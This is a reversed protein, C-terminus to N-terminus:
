IMLKLITDKELEEPSLDINCKKKDDVLKAGAKELIDNLTISDKYFNFLYKRSHEVHENAFSTINKGAYTESFYFRCTKTTTVLLGLIKQRQNIKSKTITIVNNPDVTYNEKMNKVQEKAVIINFPAEIDENYNYYNVHMIYSDMKQRKVYFLESAGKPKPADTIDGSFLINKEETRYNSDWGIKGTEPNILSLDLDIRNGDVNEWHVGFVMDKPIEIYTGNPFKDSFQKETAPLSYKVYEPIYIKKGKVNKKVDKVISDLVINLIRKAEGKNPFDFETAYGKGNRIQYIISDADKTRFKLAYALRIKRFTNVKSLKDLLINNDVQEGSKIKSTVENLYDGPMPKHHKEALRRIKNIVPKLQKNAKFALFLPKFRYFIESLKELGQNSKYKVFLSVVYANNIINKKIQEITGKNKILLTKDMTKYIVYRLFEINNEPFINFSDYLAIRVEKNKVSDVEKQNLKVFTAVEIVDKITDEGLAIGSQLLELLKEKLEKKTYGKIVTLKTKGEKLEPIDLKENPIYVSETNYIDLAEFGYTTFYHIIQEIILQTMDTDRVKKWSKHFSNNLQEPTLGIEEKILDILDDIEPYNSVVEPSLIFGHQITKQLLEKSPNKKRKTTIPVAKFLRITSKM